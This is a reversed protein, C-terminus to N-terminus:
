TFTKFKCTIKQTIKLLSILHSLFIDKSNVGVHTLKVATNSIIKVVFFTGKKKEGWDLRYFCKANIFGKILLM